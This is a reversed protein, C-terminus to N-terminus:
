GGFPMPRSPGEVPRLGEPIVEKAGGEAEGFLFEGIWGEEEVALEFGASSCPV